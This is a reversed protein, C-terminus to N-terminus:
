KVLYTCTFNNSATPLSKNKHINNMPSVMTFVKNWNWSINRDQPKKYLWLLEDGCIPESPALQDHTRVCLTSYSNTSIINNPFHHEIMFNSLSRAHTNKHTQTYIHRYIISVTNPIVKKEKEVQSPPHISDYLM